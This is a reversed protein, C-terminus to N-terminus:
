FTKEILSPSIVVGGISVPASPPIVRFVTNSIQSSNYIFIIAFFKVTSSRFFESSSNKVPVAVSTTPTTDISPSLIESPKGPLSVLVILFFYKSM